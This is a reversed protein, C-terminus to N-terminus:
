DMSWDGDNFGLTRLNERLATRQDETLKDLQDSEIDLSVRIPLDSTVFHSIVEEYIQGVDRVVRTTTLDKTAQFRKPTVSVRVTPTDTGGDRGDSEDSEETESSRKANNDQAIQELAM